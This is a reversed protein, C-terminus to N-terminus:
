EVPTAYIRTNGTQGNLYYKLFDTNHWDRYDFGMQPNALYPASPQEMIYIDEGAHDRVTQVLEDYEEAYRQFVGDRYLSLMEIPKLSTNFALPSFSINMFCTFLFLFAVVATYVGCLAAPSGAGERKQFRQNLYGAVYVINILWLLIMLLVHCNYTRAPGTTGMTYMVPMVSAAVLAISLLPVLFGYRYSLKNNKTIAFAVPVALLSFVVFSINSFLLKGAEYFSLLITQAVPTTRTLTDMRVHNGPATVAMLFGLLLFLGPLLYRKKKKTVVVVVALVAYLSTAVTSSCFNGGGLLFFGVCYLVLFFADNREQGETQYIRMLVGTFLYISLLFMFVYNVAGSYWYLGDFLSPMFLLLGIATIFAFARLGDKPADPLLVGLCRAVRLCAGIFLVIELLPFIWGLKYNWVTPPIASLFMSFFVGNWNMYSQYAAELAVKIVDWGSGQGQRANEVAHMVPYPQTLDDAVPRSYVAPILLCVAALVLAVGAIYQLTRLYRHMTM